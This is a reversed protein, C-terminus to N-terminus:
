FVVNHAKTIPVPLSGRRTLLVIEEVELRLSTDTIDPVQFGLTTAMHVGFRVDVEPRGGAVVTLIGRLATSVLNDVVVAGNLFVVVLRLKVM